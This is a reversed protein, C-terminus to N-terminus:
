SYQHINHNTDFLIPLAHGSLVTGENKNDYNLCSIEAMNGDEMISAAHKWQLVATQPM